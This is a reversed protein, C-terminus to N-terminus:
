CTVAHWATPYSHWAREFHRAFPSTVLRNRLGCFDRFYRWANEARRSKRVREVHVNKQINDAFVYLTVHVMKFAYM